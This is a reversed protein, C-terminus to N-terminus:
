KPTAKRINLDDFSEESRIDLYDALRTTDFIPAHRNEIVWVQRFQRLFDTASPDHNEIRELLPTLQSRTHEIQSALLSGRYSSVEGYMGYTEFKHVNAPDAATANVWHSGKGMFYLYWAERTRQLDHNQQPSLMAQSNRCFLTPASSVLPVWACMDHQTIILDGAAVQGRGFWNVMDTQERNVPLLKRYGTEALLIGNLCLLATALVCAIRLATRNSIASIHAGVAFTTLIAITAHEFYSAHNTLFMPPGPVFADGLLMLMNAVGLGVLAWRIEAALQRSVAVVGCLVGIFLWLKGMQSLLAAGQFHFLPAEGPLGAHFIPAGRLIFALDVAACACAYGLITQWASRRGNVIVHCTAAVATIGAMLLTAYPFSACAVFQLFVMVGWAWSKREKLAVIQLGLYFLLLPLAIQPSFPRIYPLGIDGFRSASPFHLWAVIEEKMEGFNFFMLLALGALVLEVQANPLFRDFLWIAAIGALSWWILNWVFLSRWMNGSLARTLWGFLIPGLRFKLFGASTAPVEVHYYPNLVVGPRPAQLTSLSLYLGLDPASVVPLEESQRIARTRLAPYSYIALICLVSIVYIVCGRRKLDRLPLSVDRGSATM